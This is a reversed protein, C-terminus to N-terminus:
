KNKLILYIVYILADAMDDKKFANDYNISSIVNLLSASLNSMIQKAISIAFNKRELYNKFNVNPLSNLKLQTNMSSIFALQTKDSASIFNISKVFNKETIKKLAFFTFIAISISKMIPNKFVPQNEIYIELNSAYVPENNLYDYCSLLKEKTFSELTKLLREIQVNFNNDLISNKSVRFLKKHLPKNNIKLNNACTQCYGIFNNKDSHSFANDVLGDALLYFISIKNCVKRVNIINKCLIPKYSVDLLGWDIIELGSCITTDTDYKALCYALNKIGVDFTLYYKNKTM